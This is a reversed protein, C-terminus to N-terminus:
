YRIQLRGVFIDAEVTRPVGGTQHAAAHVYNVSLRLPPEPFWNIGLAVNREIGGRVDKDNLDLFSVHAALEIIGMGGNSVRQEVPVPM